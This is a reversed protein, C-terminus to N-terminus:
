CEHAFQIAALRALAHWRQRAAAPSITRKQAHYFVLAGCPASKKDGKHQDRHAAVSRLTLAISRCKVGYEIPKLACPPPGMRSKSRSLRYGSLLNRPREYAHKIRQTASQGTKSASAPVTRRSPQFTWDEAFTDAEGSCIETAPKEGSPQYEVEAGLVTKATSTSFPTYLSGYKPM